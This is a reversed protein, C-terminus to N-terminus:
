LTQIKERLYKTTKGLLGKVDALIQAAAPNNIEPMVFADLDDALKKLKDIDPASKARAAAIQEAKKEAEFAATKQRELRLAEAAKDREIRAADEIAKREAEAKSRETALALQQAQREEDAKKREAAMLDEQRKREAAAASEVAKQKYAAQKRETELAKEKDEALKKAKVMENDYDDKHSKASALLTEFDSDTLISLDPKHFEDVYQWYNILKDKRELHLAKAKEGAVRDEEAKAEVAVRADYAVKAGSLYIAFSADTLLGLGNLFIDTFQSLQATRSLELDAIRKAEIREFHKEIDSLKEEMQEIPLTEKNKWADVFRGAALFFAKQTKHIDAIGTRVKVLKLRLTHADTCLETTLEQTILADYSSVLADREIIKPQFAQEITAVSSEELGFDKPDLKKLDTTM